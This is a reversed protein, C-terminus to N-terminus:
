NQTETLLHCLSFGVAVHRRSSQEEPQIPNFSFRRKPFLYDPHGQIQIIHDNM